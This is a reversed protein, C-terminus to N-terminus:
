QFYRSTVASLTEGSAQATAYVTFNCNGPQCGLSLFSTQGNSAISGRSIDPTSDGAEAYITATSTDNNRVRYGQTVFPPQGQTASNITPTATVAQALDWKAYLTETGGSTNQVGDTPYVQAGTGNNNSESIFWGMFNYGSRTSVPLTGYEEGYYIYKNSVTTGFNEDFNLLIRSYVAQGNMYVTRAETGNFFVQTLNSGNFVFAM